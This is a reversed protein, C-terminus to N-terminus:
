SPMSNGGASTPRSSSQTSFSRLTGVWPDGGYWASAFTLGKPDLEAVFLRQQAVALPEELIRVPAIRSSVDCRALLVKTLEARQQESQHSSVWHVVEHIPVDTNRRAEELHRDPNYKLLLTQGRNNATVAEVPPWWVLLVNFRPVESVGYFGALRTLWATTEPRGLAVQLETAIGVFVRSEVALLEWKPRFAEVFTRLATVDAATAFITLAAFAADLTPAGYFADAVRDAAKARGFLDVTGKPSDSEFTYYRERIARYSAFRQEDEATIGFRQQWYARNQM